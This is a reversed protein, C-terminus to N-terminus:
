VLEYTDGKPKLKYIMNKREIVVDWRNEKAASFLDSNPNFAIPKEVQMLMPIDSNSDGIAFSDKYTLQHKKVFKQLAEAKNLSPIYASGSFKGDKRAYKSGIFDNFDYYKALKEILEHHSGSIALLFYNQQKLKKILERTYTYVQDKYEEIIVEILKDFEETPLKTFAEEYSTILEREYVTFSESSVRKKWNMRAQKIKEYSDKGLFGQKALRDVIVHYLQWRILTGDIDFVAFRKM